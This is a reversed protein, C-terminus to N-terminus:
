RVRLRRKLDMLRDIKEQLRQEIESDPSDSSRLQENALDTLQRGLDAIKALLAQREMPASDELAPPAFALALM